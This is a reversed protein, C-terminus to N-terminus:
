KREDNVVQYIDVSVRNGAWAQFIHGLQKPMEEEFVHEAATADEESDFLTMSLFKGDKTFMDIRGAYGALGSVLPRLIAEAEDMTDRAADLNVGEFAAVRAIM